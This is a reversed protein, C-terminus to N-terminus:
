LGPVTTLKTLRTICLSHLLEFKAQSITVLVVLDQSPDISFKHFTVGFKIIHRSPPIRLSTVTLGEASQPGAGTIFGTALIGDRLEWLAHQEYDTVRGVSQSPDFSLDLWGIITSVSAIYYPPFM